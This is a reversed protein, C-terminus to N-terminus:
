EEDKRNYLYIEFIVNGSLIIIIIPVSLILFPIAKIINKCLGKFTDDDTTPLCFNPCYKVFLNDVIKCKNNVYERLEANSMRKKDNIKTYFM